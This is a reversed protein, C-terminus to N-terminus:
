NPASTGGLFTPGGVEAQPRCHEEQHMIRITHEAWEMEFESGVVELRPAMRRSRILSWLETVSFACLWM